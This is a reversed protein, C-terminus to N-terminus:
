LLETVKLVKLEELEEELVQPWGLVALMEVFTM